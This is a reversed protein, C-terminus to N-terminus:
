KSPTERRSKAEAEKQEKKENRNKQYDKKRM